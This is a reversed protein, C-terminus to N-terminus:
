DAESMGDYEAGGCGASLLLTLAGISSGFRM